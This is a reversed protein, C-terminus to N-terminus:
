TWPTQSTLLDFWDTSLSVLGSYESSFSFSFSRYTPWRIRLGSESSFVRVSPSVSPPLLLPRCLILLLSICQAVSEIQTASYCALSPAQKSRALFGKHAAGEFDWM